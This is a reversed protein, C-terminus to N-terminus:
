LTVTGEVRARPILCCPISSFGASSFGDSGCSVWLLRCGEHFTLLFYVNRKLSSLIQLQKNSCCFSVLVPNSLLHSVECNRQFSETFFCAAELIIDLKILKLVKTNHGLNSLNEGDELRQKFRSESVSIGLLWM